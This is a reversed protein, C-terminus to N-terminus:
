KIMWMVSIEAILSDKLSNLYIPNYVVVEAPYGNSLGRDRNFEISGDKSVLPGEVVISLDDSPDNGNSEFVIGQRAIIGAQIHPTTSSSIVDTGVDSSITVGGDVVFVVRSDNSGTTFENEFELDGDVFVVAVGDGDRYSLGTQQQLM